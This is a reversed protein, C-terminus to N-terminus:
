QSDLSELEKIRDKQAQEFNQMDAAADNIQSTPSVNKLGSAGKKAVNLVKGVVNGILSGSNGQSRKGSDTKKVIKNILPMKQLALRRQRWDSKEQKSFSDSYLDIGAGKAVKPWKIKKVWSDSRPNDIVENPKILVGQSAVVRKTDGLGVSTAEVAGELVALQSREKNANHLFLFQTGRVKLEASSSTVELFHMKGRNIFDVVIAGRELHFFNFQTGTASRDQHQIRGIKLESNSFLKIISNGAFTIIVVSNKGSVLQDKYKLEFDKAVNLIREGRKVFVDGSGRSISVRLNDADIASRNSSPRQFTKKKTSTNKAMKIKSIPNKFMQGPRMRIMYFTYVTMGVSFLLFLKKIM